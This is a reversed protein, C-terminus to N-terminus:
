GYGVQGLKKESRRELCLIKKKPRIIAPAQKSSFVNEASRKSQM